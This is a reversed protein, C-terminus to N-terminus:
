MHSLGRQLPWQAPHARAYPALIADLRARDAHQRVQEHHSGAAPAGMLVPHPTDSPALVPAAAAGVAFGPHHRAEELFPALLPSPTLHTPCCPTNPEVLWAKTLARAITGANIHANYARAQSQAPADRAHDLAALRGLLPRITQDLDPPLRHTHHASIAGLVLARVDARLTALMPLAQETPSFPTPSFTARPHPTGAVSIAQATMDVAVARGTALLIAPHSFPPLDTTFAGPAITAFPHAFGQEWLSFADMVWQNTHPRHLDALLTTIADDTCRGPAPTIHARQVGITIPARQVASDPSRLLLVFGCSPPFPAM